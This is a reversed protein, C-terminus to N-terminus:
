LSSPLHSFYNHNVLERSIHAEAETYYLAHILSKLYHFSQSIPILGMGNNTFDIKIAEDM